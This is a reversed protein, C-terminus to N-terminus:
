VIRKTPLTLHTYSVAIPIGRKRAKMFIFAEPAFKKISIILMIIAFFLGLTLFILGMFVMESIVIM